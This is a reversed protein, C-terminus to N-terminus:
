ESGLASAAAQAQQIEAGLPVAAIGYMGISRTASDKTNAGLTVIGPETVTRQWISFRKDISVGAGKGRRSHTKSGPWNGGDLGIKDDTKRFNQALWDPIRKVRDDFLIYLTAPRGLKVSIELSSHVKDSNFPKVYDADILYTPMGQKTVGNWEHEPRDVYARADERLGGAVIEYYKKTDTQLNDTVEVITPASAGTLHEDRCLFTSAMGTVISNIRTPEGDKNFTVGEGGVLREASRAPSPDTNAVRLDVAGEFVVLGTKGSRSVELGFETGLDTVDGDPTEVIFGRGSKETVRMQIRGYNLRARMPGILDFDTPGDVQVWGVKDIGLKVSGSQLQVSTFSPYGNQNSGLGQIAPSPYFSTDHNRFIFVAVTAVAAAVAIGSIWSPSPFQGRRSQVGVFRQDIEGGGRRSFMSTNVFQLVREEASESAVTSLKRQDASDAATGPSVDGLLRPLTADIHMSAAYYACCATDTCVLEELRATEEASLADDCLRTILHRLEALRQM